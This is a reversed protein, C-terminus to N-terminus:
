GIEYAINSWNSTPSNLCDINAEVLRSLPFNAFVTNSASFGIIANTGNWDFLGCKFTFIAYTKNGQSALVAQFASSNTQLWLAVIILIYHILVCVENSTNIDMWQAVLIWDAKFNISFNYALYNNVLNIAETQKSIDTKIITYNLEGATNISWYPAIVKASIPFSQLM